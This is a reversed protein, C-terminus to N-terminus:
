ARSAAAASFSLGSSGAKFSLGKALLNFLSKDDRCAAIKSKLEPTMDSEVVAVEALTGSSLDMGSIFYRHASYRFVTLLLSAGSPQLSAEHQGIQSAVVIRRPPGPDVGVRSFLEVWRDEKDLDKLIDEGLKVCCESGNPVERARLETDKGKRYIELKLQEGTKASQTAAALQEGKDADAKGEGATGGAAGPVPRAYTEHVKVLERTLASSAKEMGDALERADDNEEELEAIRAELRSREAAVAEEIERRKNAIQEELRAQHKMMATLRENLEKIKEDKEAAAHKWGEMVGHLEKMAQAQARLKKELDQKEKSLNSALIDLGAPGEEMIQFRKEFIALESEFEEDSDEPAEQETKKVVFKGKRRAEKLKEALQKNSRKLKGCEEHLIRMDKSMKDMQVQTKMRDRIAEDRQVVARGVKDVLDAVDNVRNRMSADQNRAQLGRQLLRVEHIHAKRMENMMTIAESADKTLQGVERKAELLERQLTDSQERGKKFERELRQAQAMFADKKASTIALQDQLSRVKRALKSNDQLAQQYSDAQLGRTVQEQSFELSGMSQSHTLGPGVKEWSTNEREAGGEGGM